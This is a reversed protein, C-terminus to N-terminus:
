CESGQLILITGLCGSLFNKKAVCAPFLFCFSLFVVELIKIFYDRSKQPDNLANNKKNLLLNKTFVYM